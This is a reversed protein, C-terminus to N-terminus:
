ILVALSKWHFWFVYDLKQKDCSVASVKEGESIARVCVCVHERQDLRYLVFTENM